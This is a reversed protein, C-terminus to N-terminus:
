PKGSILNIKNESVTLGWKQGAVTKGINANLVLTAFNYNVTSTTDIPSFIALPGKAFNTKGNWQADITDADVRWNGNRMFEFQGMMPNEGHFRVMMRGSKVNTIDYNTNINFKRTPTEIHVNVKNNKANWTTWDLSITVQEGNPLQLVQRFKKDAKTYDVIVRKEGNLELVRQVGNTTVKFSSIEPANTIIHLMQGPKHEVTVELNHRRPDDFVMPLISPANLKMVYPSAMTNMEYEIQTETDKKIDAKVSFKNLFMNKNKLDVHIKFDGDWKNYCGAYASKSACFISGTPMHLMTKLDAKIVNRNFKTDLLFHTEQHKTFEIFIKPQRKITLKMDALNTKVVLEKGAKHDVTVTWVPLGFMNMPSPMWFPTKPETWTLQYPTKVTDLKITKVVKGDFKVETDFTMKNFLFNKNKKDVFVKRVVDIKKPCPLPYALKCHVTYLLSQEDMTQRSVEKVEFKNGNNIVTVDHDGRMHTEAGHAWLYIVHFGFNAKPEFTLDFKGEIPYWQPAIPQNFTLVYPANVTDFKYEAYLKGDLIVKDEYSMKNMLVNKNVKDFFFKRVQHGDKYQAVPHLMNKYWRNLAYFEESVIAKTDEVIEFKTADNIITRDKVLQIVMKGNKTFKFIYNVGFNERPTFTLDVKGEFPYYSPAQPVEWLFTFPTKTTDIKFSSFKKGGFTSESEYSFKNLLYNKNKKDFFFKQTQEYTTTCPVPVTMYKCHWKYIPSDRSMFTKFVQTAEWKNADNATETQTGETKLYSKGGQTIELKYTFGPNTPKITLDVKGQIGGKPIFEVIFAKKPSFGDFHIKAQGEQKEMTFSPGQMFTYTSVYKFKQPVLGNMKVDGTLRVLAYVNDRHKINLEAEKLDKSLVMMIGVPGYVDGTIQVGWKGAPNLQFNLNFKRGPVTVKVNATWAAKDISAVLTYGVGNQLFNVTISKGPVRSVTMEWTNDNDFTAKGVFHDVHNSELYIEFLKKANSDLKMNTKYVGNELKRYLTVTGQQPRDAFFTFKQIFKYDFKMEFLGDVAEGGKFDFELEVDDFSASKVFRHAPFKMHVKGGKIPHAPDVYKLKFSLGLVEMDFEKDWDGTSRKVRMGMATALPEPNVLFDQVQNMLQDPIAAGHTGM